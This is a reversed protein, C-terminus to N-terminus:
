MQVTQYKSVIELLADCFGKSLLEKPKKNSGNGKCLALVLDDYEKQGEVFEGVTECYKKLKEKQTDDFDLWVDLISSKVDVEDSSTTTQFSENRIVTAYTSDFSVNRYELQQLYQKITKESLGKRIYENELIKELSVSSNKTNGYIKRYRWILNAAADGAPINLAGSNLYKRISQKIWPIAYTSFKVEREPDFLEVARMLGITGESVLEDYRGKKRLHTAM